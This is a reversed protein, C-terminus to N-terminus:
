IVCGYHYYYCYFYIFVTGIYCWLVKWYPGKVNFILKNVFHNLIGVWNIM